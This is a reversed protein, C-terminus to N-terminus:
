FRLKAVPTYTEGCGTQEFVKIAPRAKYRKSGDPNTKTMFIWKSVIPKVGAYQSEPVYAWTDNLESFSLEAYIAKGWSEAHELSLPKRYSTLKGQEVSARAATARKM